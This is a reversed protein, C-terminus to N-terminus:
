LCGVALELDVLVEAVPLILARFQVAEAAVVLWL